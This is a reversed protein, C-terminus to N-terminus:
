SVLAVLAVTAMLRGVVAVAVVQTQMVLPVQGQVLQEMAVAALGVRELLLVAVAVAEQTHLPHALLLLHRVQGAMAAQPELAEAVESKLPEVVVAVAQTQLVLVQATEVMIVKVLLVLGLFARFIGEVVVVLVEM